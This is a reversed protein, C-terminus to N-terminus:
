PGNCNGWNYGPYHFSYQDFAENGCVVLLLNPRALMSESYSSRRLISKYSQLIVTAVRLWHSKVINPDDGQVKWLCDVFHFMIEQNLFKMATLKM